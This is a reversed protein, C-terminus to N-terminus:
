LQVASDPSHAHTLHQSLQQQGDSCGRFEAGQTAQGYVNKRKKSLEVARSRARLASAILLNGM